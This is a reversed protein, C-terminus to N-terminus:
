SRWVITKIHIQPDNRQGRNAFYILVQTRSLRSFLDGHFHVHIAHRGIGMFFYKYENNGSSDCSYFLYNSYKNNLNFM